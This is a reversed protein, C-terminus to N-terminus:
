FSTLLCAGLLAPCTSRASLTCTCVHTHITMQYAMNAGNERPEQASPARSTIEDKDEPRTSDWEDGTLHHTWTIALKNPSITDPVALICQYGKSLSTLALNIGTNGGTGEVIIGGPKLLGKREAEEM